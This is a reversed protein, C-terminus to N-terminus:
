FRLNSFGRNPRNQNSTWNDTSRSFVVGHSVGDDGVGVGGEEEEEEEEEERRQPCVALRVGRRRPQPRCDPVKLGM